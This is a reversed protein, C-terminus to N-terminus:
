KSFVTAADLVAEVPVTCAAAPCRLRLEFATHKGRFRLEGPAAEEVGIYDFFEPTTTTRRQVAIPVRSRWLMPVSANGAAASGGTDLVGAWHIEATWEPGQHLSAYTVLVRPWAAPGGASTAGSADFEFRYCNTSDAGVDTLTERYGIVEGSERVRMAVIRCRLPPLPKADKVGLQGRIRTLRDTLEVATLILAEGADGRWVFGPLNLREPRGGPLAITGREWDFAAGPFARALLADTVQKLEATVGRAGQARACVQGQLVALSVLLFAAFGRKM